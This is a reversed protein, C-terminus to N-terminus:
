SPLFTKLLIAQPADIWINPHSWLHSNVNSYSQALNCLKRGHPGISQPAGDVLYRTGFKSTLLHLNGARDNRENDVIPHIEVLQIGILLDVPWHPSTIRRAEVGLIDSEAM